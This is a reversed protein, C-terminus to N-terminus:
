QSTELNLAVSPLTGQRDENMAPSNGLIGQLEDVSGAEHSRAVLQWQRYGSLITVGFIRLCRLASTAILVAHCRYAVDGDSGVGFLFDGM